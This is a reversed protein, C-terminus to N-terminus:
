GALTGTVILARHPLIVSLIAQKTPACVRPNDGILSEENAWNRILFLRFLCPLKEFETPFEYSIHCSSLHIHAIPHIPYSRISTPITHFSPLGNDVMPLYSCSMHIFCNTVHIPCVNWSQTATTIAFRDNILTLLVSRRPRDFPSLYVTSWTNRPPPIKWEEVIRVLSKDVKRITKM